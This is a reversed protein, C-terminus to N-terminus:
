SMEEQRKTSLFSHWGIEPPVVKINRIGPYIKTQCCPCQYVMYAVLPCIKGVQRIFIVAVTGGTFNSSSHVFVSRVFLVSSNHAVTILALAAAVSGERGERGM